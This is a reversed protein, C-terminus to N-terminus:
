EDESDGANGADSKEGDGSDDAADSKKARSRTRAPAPSKRKRPTRRRRPTKAPAEGSSEADGASDGAGESDGADGSDANSESAGSDRPEDRDGSDDRHRSTDRHRNSRQQDEEEDSLREYSGYDGEDEGDSFSVRAQERRLADDDNEPENLVEVGRRVTVGEMHEYRETPDPREEREDERKERPEGRESERPYDGRVRGRGRGGRSRRRRRSEFDEATRGPESRSPESRVIAVEEEPLNALAVLALEYAITGLGTIQGICVGALLSRSRFEERAHINSIHVEIVPVGIAVIADRLAVSTHTYGGPNFVIGNVRNRCKHIADILEGEHNSQRFEVDVRLNQARKRVNGEVDSLTERGYIEPERLGLLNLNPGNLILFRM